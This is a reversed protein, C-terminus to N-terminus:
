QDEEANTPQVLDWSTLASQVSIANREGADVSLEALVANRDGM